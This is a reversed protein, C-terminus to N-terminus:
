KIGMNLANEKILVINELEREMLAARRDKMDAALLTIGTGAFPDRRYTRALCRALAAEVKEDM